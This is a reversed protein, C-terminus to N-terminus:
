EVGGNGGERRERVKWTMTGVLYSTSLGVYIFGRLNHEKENGRRKIEPKMVACVSNILAFMGVSEKEGRYGYVYM